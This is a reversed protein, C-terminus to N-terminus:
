TDNDRRRASWRNALAGAAMGCIAFVISDWPTGPSLLPQGDIAHNLVPLWAFGYGMGLITVYPNERSLINRRQLWWVPPLPWGMALVILVVSTWRM